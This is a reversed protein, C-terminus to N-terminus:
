ESFVTGIGWPKISPLTVLTGNDTKEAKVETFEGNIQCFTFKDGAPEKIILHLEESEGVTINVISVAATRGDKDTKPYIHAPLRDTLVADTKAGIYELANMYQNRKDFSLVGKWTWPDYASIYWKGGLATEAVAGSVGGFMDPDNVGRYETVTEFKGETIVYHISGFFNMSWNKSQVGRCIPHDTYTETFPRIDRKEVKVGLKEGLGREWLLEVSRGDCFVNESLLAELEENTMGAAHSGHLICAGRDNKYYSVPIAARYFSTGSFIDHEDWDFPESSDLVKWPTNPLALEVGGSKTRKNIESLKKFYKYNDSMAKMQLTLWPMPEYVRMMTAYSVTTADTAALYLATEFTQGAITKGYVVDPLNEIEPCIDRVGEPLWRTQMAFYYTKLFFENPDSDDYAGGGPRFHGENGTTRFFEDFVATQWRGKLNGHAGNQLAPHSSPSYEHIAEGIVRAVNGMRWANFNVWKTRLEKDRHIGQVIDDRTVNLGNQENFIAMCRDCYCVHDRCLRLDDDVWVIDPKIEELYYKLEKKLYDLFLPSTACIICNSKTGDEKTLFADSGEYFLATNDNSLGSPGHGLTNSIQLSVRIGQARLKKAYEAYRKSAEKHKELSPFGYLSSLWVEHCSDPYKEAAELFEDLRESKLLRDALRHIYM